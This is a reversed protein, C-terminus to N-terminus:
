IAGLQQHLDFVDCPLVDLQSSIVSRVASRNTPLCVDDGARRTGTDWPNYDIFVRVGAAQLAAVLDALGPVDRYFDWQNRDDIGIVPYAHWLVIGDLGGLRADADALLREPTFRGGGFDYLLEDWLWVQAVAFCESSWAATSREYGAGTFGHRARADTRWQTLRERWAPWQEPDLPAAFIKADDLIALDIPGAGLPVSTPLDIKRPVLPDFGFSSVDDVGGLETM